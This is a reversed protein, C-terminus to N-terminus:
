KPNTSFKAVQHVAMSFDPRAYGALHQSLRIALRCRSSDGDRDKGDKSKGLLPKVVSLSRPNAEMLGLLDLTRKM